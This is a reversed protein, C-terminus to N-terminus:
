DVWPTKTLELLIPWMKKKPGTVIGVEGKRIRVKEAKTLTHPTFLIKKGPFAELVEDL